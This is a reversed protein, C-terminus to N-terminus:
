GGGDKSTRVDLSQPFGAEGRMAMRSWGGRREGRQTVTDISPLSWNLADATSGCLTSNGLNKCSPVLCNVRPPELYACQGMVWHACQGMVLKGM